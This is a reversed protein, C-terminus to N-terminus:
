HNIRALTARVAHTVIATQQRFMETDLNRLRGECFLPRWPSHDRTILLIPGGVAAWPYLDITNGHPTTLWSHQWKARGFYGDKLEVPFCAAIARTIAHCSVPIPRGDADTGLDVEPLELFVKRIDEFLKLEEPNIQKEAFSKM